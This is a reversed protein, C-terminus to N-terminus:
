SAGGESDFVFNTSTAIRWSDRDCAQRALHASGEVHIWQARGPDNECGDMDTWAVCHLVM